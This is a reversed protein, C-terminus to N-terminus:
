GVQRLVARRIITFHCLYNCSLFYDPSWDPKFIPSDLGEETLKDEDSYILDADRHDQLWKVHEFLADPELLDDHDLFGIWDGEAIELGRNSAASIGGRKDDHALVIRSDRAALQPLLKLTEPDNSDDDILILEWKEYVQGLVSQVCQELWQVPTNFVPTIITVCPQYPFERAQTRLAGLESEKVRHAEFWEQYETAPASKGSANQKPFRKRVERLLKQPLRYPALVVQGVKREPSKRLAQKEAKLQKLQKKAEKLKLLKEELKAIHRDAADLEAMRTQLGRELGRVHRNLRALASEVAPVPVGASGPTKRVLRIARPELEGLDCGYDPILHFREFSEILQPRRKAVEVGAASVLLVEEARAALEAAAREDENKEPPYFWIAMGAPPYGGNQPFAAVLDGINAFASAKLGAYEFQRELEEHEAGVVLFSPHPFKQAIIQAFDSRM